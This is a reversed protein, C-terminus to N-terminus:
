RGRRARRPAMPTGREPAASTTMLAPALAVAVASAFGGGVATLVAKAPVPTRPMGAVACFPLWGFVVDKGGCLVCGGGEVRAPRGLRGGAEWKLTRHNCGGWAVTCEACTALTQNAQCEICLNMIHNCCIACTEVVMDGCVPLGRRVNSKLGSRRPRQKHSHGQRTQLPPTLHPRRTVGYHSV